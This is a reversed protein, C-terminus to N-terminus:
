LLYKSPLSPKKFLPIAIILIIYIIIMEETEQHGDPKFDVRLKSFYDKQRAM